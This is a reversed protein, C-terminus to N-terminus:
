KYLLSVARVQLTGNVSSHYLTGGYANFPWAVNAYCWQAFWRSATNAIQTKGMRSLTANITNRMNDEMIITGEQVGHLFMDGPELGEVGVYGKTIGYHLAPCLYATGGNKTPVMRMGYDRCLSHADPLNFVGHKQPFLIGFEGRIYAEYTKYYARVEAAYPSTQFESLLMPDINSTEGFVPVNATLTRGNTAFRAIGREVSMIGRYNTTRGNSKMYESSAPMSGWTTFTITGGTMSCGYQNYHAWTDCQVIIKTGGTDVKNGEDDALYAWWAKTDGMETAKAAVAASIEAASTANIEASTLTVPVPILTAYQADGEKSTDQIKLSIVIDTSTIASITHHIVGGYKASSEDGDVLLHGGRLMGAFAGVPTMGTQTLLANNLLNGGRYYHKQKNEDYYCADGAQVADLPIETNIGDYVTINGLKVNAVRSETTPKGAAALAAPTDFQKIM